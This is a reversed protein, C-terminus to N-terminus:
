RREAQERLVEALSRQNGARTGEDVSALRAHMALAQELATRAGDLDGARKRARGLNGLVIEVENHDDGFSRRFIPLARELRAVAEAGAGTEELVLAGYALDVAVNLDNPGYLREDIALARDILGLAEDSHGDRHTAVGLGALARATWPHDEGVAASILQYARENTERCEAVAERRCQINALTLLPDALALHEPGFVREGLEVAHELDVEGKDFEGLMMWRRASVVAHILETPGTDGHVRALAGTALEDWQAAAAAESRLVGFYQMVMTAASAATLDDGARYATFFSREALEHAREPADLNQHMRSRQYDLRAEIPPWHLAAAADVLAELRDLAAQNHGLRRVTEAAAMEGEIRRLESRAEPDEPRPLDYALTRADNCREVAPLQMASYVSNEVALRDAQTLADVLTALAGRREAVCAQNREAGEADLSRDIEIAVCSETAAARWRAAHEDIRPLVRDAMAGADLADSALFATRVRASAEDNWLADISAGAQECRAHAMADDLKWAGLVAPVLAVGAALALWRRRRRRPDDALARLLVEMSAHRQEPAHALGTRLATEIWPAIAGRPPSRIKGELVREFVQAATEGAFPRQGALAEWLAVCFAFQDSRADTPEGLIQESAMYGPTGVRLGARTVLTDSSFDPLDNARTSPEPEGLRTHALGFDVVRVRPGAATPAEDQVLVNDPKFDRHVVNAAHAAALGHGAQLYAALVERPSPRTDVLWQRLTRGRVFEMAVYGHGEHEGIEFVGVVNPHSLRAMAQAERLLRQRLARDDGTPQLIKIAIKRDLEADYAAYVVGMAGEGVRELIVFRGVRVPVVATGTLKAAVAARLRQVEVDSTALIPAEPFRLSAHAAVL